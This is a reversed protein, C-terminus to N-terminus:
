KYFMKIPINVQLSGVISMDNPFSFNDIFFKYKSEASTIFDIMRFMEQEDSVTIVLNIRGENFGYENKSGKDFNISDIVTFGSGSRSTAVYNYFYDILEDEKVENVYKKIDTENSINKSIKEIEQLIQVKKTYENEKIELADLNNLISFYSGKTFTFLIFLSVLILFYFLLKNQNNIKM